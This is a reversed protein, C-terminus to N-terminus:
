PWCNRRGRGQLLDPRAQAEQTAMGLLNKDVIDGAHEMNTAFALIESVRRHDAESMAEPDLSTLYAKIATNLKDLVDDLRRTESIQRRDAKDFADRVGQLMRRWCTPWACRRARRPASRSWRRRARRRTSISRGRRSRGSRDPGAALAAAAGCLADAAPLLGAGPGPQLRHPLRRGGACQGARRDGAVPRDPCRPSPRRAVGVLATSCIASRCGGARGPRRRDRRGAGPQDRHRSQRRAGPRLRGGAARRGQGRVVHDAARHRRQFAGGLDTRGGPHRRAGAPHRGRRAAPAPEARGRVAHAPRAVSAAGDADPRARDARPRLRAPRGVGRRFMLVGILILAPAVEAVDFSLVQVILTTGVNAGLMVALAPVLDVLGGAAFGTVMLGTATSSQLLATVGIGALFAKFRNRLASGLFSRLRAGFARQVGTQVMHVGWLLLAVSGALDFLTVPFDM